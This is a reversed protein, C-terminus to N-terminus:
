ACISHIAQNGVKQSANPILGLLFLNVSSTPWCARHQCCSASSHVLVILLQPCSSNLVRWPPIQQISSALSSPFNACDRGARAAFAFFCSRSPPVWHLLSFYSIKFDTLRMNVILNKKEKQFIQLLAQPWIGLRYLKLARLWTHQTTVYGPRACLTISVLRQRRSVLLDWHHSHLTHFFGRGGWSGRLLDIPLLPKNICM